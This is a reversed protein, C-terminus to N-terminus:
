TQDPQRSAPSCGVVVFGPLTSLLQGMWAGVDIWTRHSGLDKGATAGAHIELSLHHVGDREAGHLVMTLGLVDRTLLLAPVEDRLGPIEESFPVGGLVHQSILRGAERLEWDSRLM